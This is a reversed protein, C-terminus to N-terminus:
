PIPFAIREQKGARWLTLAARGGPPTRFLAALLDSETVLGPRGEVGLVVDGAKLLAATEQNKEKVWGPPFGKVRLAMGSAPLGLKSREDTPLAELPQVGLLRHRMSWAIVRWTFDDKRRWGAPLRLRLRSASGGRDVEVAIEAPEESRHLVWQVDAISLPAQGGFKAIRDGAKFGADAAPTGPHVESVVATEKPDLLLGIRDPVPYPWLERDPVADKRARLSWVAADHAQHCHICGGRTGDAPKTNPKGKLEPIDQPLKWPASPGSKGALEAKNAPYGAHFALAAKLAKKFGDMSLHSTTEKAGARTGYRGYVSKDANLFMAAWTLEPDFQFLDQDLGWGQVIRVTVFKSLLEALEADNRGAVQRDM